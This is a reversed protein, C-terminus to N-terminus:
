CHSIMLLLVLRIVLNIKKFQINLKKSYNASKNRDIYYNLTDLLDIKAEVSWEIKRKVM